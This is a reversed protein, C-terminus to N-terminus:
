VLEVSELPSQAVNNNSLSEVAHCNQLEDQWQIDNVEM